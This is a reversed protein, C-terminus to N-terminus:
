LIALLMVLQMVDRVTGRGGDRARDIRPREIFDRRTGVFRFMVLRTRTSDTGGGGGGGGDGGGGCGARTARTQTRAGGRTTGRQATM